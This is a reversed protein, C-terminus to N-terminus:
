KTNNLADRLLFMCDMDKISEEHNCRPCVFVEFEANALVEAIAERLKDSM